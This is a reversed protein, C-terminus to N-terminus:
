RFYEAQLANKHLPHKESYGKGGKQPTLKEFFVGIGSALTLMLSFLYPVYDM